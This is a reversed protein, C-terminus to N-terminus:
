IAALKNYEDEIPQWWNGEGKKDSFIYFTQTHTEGPEVNIGGATEGTPKYNWGNQHDGIRCERNQNCSIENGPQLNIIGHFNDKESSAYAYWKTTRQYEWGSINKPNGEKEIIPDGEGDTVIVLDGDEDYKYIKSEPFTNENLGQDNRIRLADGGDPPIIIQYWYPRIWLADEKLNIIKMEVKVYKSTPTMTYITEMKYDPKDQHEPYTIKVGNPLPELQSMDTFETRPNPPVPYNADLGFYGERWSNDTGKTWIRIPVGAFYNAIQGELAEAKPRDYDYAKPDLPHYVVDPLTIFLQTNTNEMVYLQYAYAPFFWPKIREEENVIYGKVTPEVGTGSATGIVPHEFSQGIGKNTYAAEIEIAVSEEPDLDKQCFITTKQNRKIEKEGILRDCPEGNILMNEIVGNSNAGIALTVHAGENENDGESAIIIADDCHFPAAIDCRTPASSNFIGLMWLAAVVLLIVIIAWGYTLLFEMAVQGRKEGMNAFSCRIM